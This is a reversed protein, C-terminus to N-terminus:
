RTGGENPSVNGQPVGVPTPSQGPLAYPSTYSKASLSRHLRIHGAHPYLNSAPSYNSYFGADTGSRLDVDAYRGGAAWPDASANATQFLLLAVLGSGARYRFM